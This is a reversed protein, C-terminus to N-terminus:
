LWLELRDLLDISNIDGLENVISSDSKLMINM